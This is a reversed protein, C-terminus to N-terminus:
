GGSATVGPPGELIEVEPTSKLLSRCNIAYFVNGVEVSEGSKLAISGSGTITQARAEASPLLGAVGLCFIALFANSSTRM